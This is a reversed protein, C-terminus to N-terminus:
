KEVWPQARGSRGEKARSTSAKKPEGPGLKGTKLFAQMSENGWFADFKGYFQVEILPYFDTGACKGESDVQALLEFFCGM